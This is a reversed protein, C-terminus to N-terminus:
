VRLGRQLARRPRSVACRPQQARPRPLPGHHASRAAAERGQRSQHRHTGRGPAHPTRGRRHRPRDRAAPLLPEGLGRPMRRDGARRVLCTHRCSCERDPAAVAVAITSRPRSPSVHTNLLNLTTSRHPAYTAARLPIRVRDCRPPSSRHGSRPPVSSRAPAILDHRSARACPRHQHHDLGPAGRAMRRAALRDSPANGARAHARARRRIPRGSRCHRHFGGRSIRNDIAPGRPSAPHHSPHSRLHPHGSQRPCRQGGRGHGPRVRKAAPQDLCPGRQRPPRSRRPSDRCNRASRLAIQRARAARSHSFTWALAILSALAAIVLASRLTANM